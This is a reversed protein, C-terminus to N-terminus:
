LLCFCSSSQRCFTCSVLTLFFNAEAQGLFTNLVTEFGSLFFKVSELDFAGCTGKRAASVWELGAGNCLVEYVWMQRLEAVPNCDSTAQSSILSVSSESVFFNFSHDKVCCTVETEDACVSFVCKDLKEHKKMPASM